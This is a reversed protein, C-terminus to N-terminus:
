RDTLPIKFTAAVGERRNELKFLDTIGYLQSLRDVTNKIGTGMEKELNFGSPLSPGDNYVTLEMKKNDCRATIEIRSAPIRKTTGHKFANEVIPLLILNPVPIELCAGQADITIDLQNKFRVKEIDLYKTVLELEEELTVMQKDSKWLTGRLMDSLGSIMDVAKSDQNRRVMMSITHLANFLFHPHLQMKLAKLRATSLQSELEASKVYQENYRKYFDIAVLAIVILSYFLFSRLVLFWGQGLSNAVAALFPQSTNGAELIRLVLHQDVYTLGIHIAGFLFGGLFLLTYFVPGPRPNWQKWILHVPIALLWLNFFHPIIFSLSFTWPYPSGAMMYRAYSQLFDLGM